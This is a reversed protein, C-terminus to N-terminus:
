TTAFRPATHRLVVVLPEQFFFHRALRVAKEATLSEAENGHNRTLFRLFSERQSRSLVLGVIEAGESLRTQLQAWTDAEPQEAWRSPSLAPVEGEPGPQAGALGLRRASEDDLEYRGLNEAADRAGREGLVEAAAGLREAGLEGSAHHLVVFSLGHPLPVEDSFLWSFDSM